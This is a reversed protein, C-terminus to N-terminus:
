TCAGDDGVDRGKWWGEGVKLLKLALFRCEIWGRTGEGSRCFFKGAKVGNDSTSGGGSCLVARVVRESAAARGIGQEGGLGAPM